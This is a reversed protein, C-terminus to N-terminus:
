KNWKSLNKSFYEASMGIYSALTKHPIRRILHKENKMLYEFRQTASDNLLSLLRNTLTTYSNLIIKRNAFALEHSKNNLKEMIKYPFAILTCDEITEIFFNSRNEGFYGSLDGIWHNEIGIFLTQEFGNENIFYQKVAGKVIFYDYENIQGEKLLLSKKVFTKIEINDRILKEDEESLNTYQNIHKFIIDEM